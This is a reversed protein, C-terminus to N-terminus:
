AVIELFPKGAKPSGTSKVAVVDGIKLQLFQKLANYSKPEEKKRKLFDIIEKESKQYLNKLDYDCAFGTCVVNYKEMSPFMDFNNNENYKSGILFYSTSIPLKYNANGDYLIEGKKKHIQLANRVNRHWTPENNTPTVEKLDDTTFDKFNNEITAYIDTINFWKGKPLNTKLVTWLTKIPTIM